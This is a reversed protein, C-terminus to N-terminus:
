GQSEVMAMERLIGKQWAVFNARREESLWDVAPQFMTGLGPLLGAAGPEEGDEVKRQAHKEKRRLPTIAPQSKSTRIDNDEEEDGHEPQSPLNHYWEMGKWEDLCGIYEEYQKRMQAQNPISAALEASKFHAAATAHIGVKRKADTLEHGDMQATVCAFVSCVLAPVKEHGSKGPGPDVAANHISEVGAYVHTSAKPTKYANCLHRILPMTWVPLQDDAKEERARLARGAAKGSTPTPKVVREGRSAPTGAQRVSRASKPTEVRGEFGDEAKRKRPTAPTDRLANELFGYLKRYIKPGCPAVSKGIELGLKDRLRECALHCCVYTRAIEEEPKLNPAKARSQALLTTALSTLPTPLSSATPLLLNLTRDIDRSTM